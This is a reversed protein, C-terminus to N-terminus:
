ESQNFRQVKKRDDEDSTAGMAAGVGGGILVGIPGALLGLLGGVVAGAATSSTDGEAQVDSISFIQNALRFRESGILIKLEHRTAAKTNLYTKQGSQDEVFLKM